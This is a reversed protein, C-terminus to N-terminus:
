AVAGNRSLVPVLHGPASAHVLANRIPWVDKPLAAIRDLPQPRHLPQASGRLLRCGFPANPIRRSTGDPKPGDRPFLLARAEETPVVEM